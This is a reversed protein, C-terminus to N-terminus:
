ARVGGRRARRWAALRWLLGGAVFLFSVLAAAQWYWPSVFRVRIDSDFGAPLAIHIQGTDGGSVALAAGGEGTARYGPYYLLPVTVTGGAETRAHLTCTTGERSFDTVEADQATPTKPLESASRGALAAPLYETGAAAFDPISKGDGYASQNWVAANSICFGGEILSCVILAAAAAPRWQGQGRLLEVAACGPMVLLVAAIGLYRWSFQVQTLMHLVPVNVLFDWPTTWLCCVLAIGGAAAGACGAAWTRDKPKAGYLATWLLFLALAMLLALGVTQPAERGIGDRVSGGGEGASAAFLLLQGLLTGDAQLKGGPSFSIASVGRLMYDALPVLFWLSALAATGAAKCLALLRAPRLTRRLLCVCTGLTFLAFMETSLVHCQVVGAFGAALPVWCRRWGPADPALTFVDWLGAVILPAFALATYEGLACRYYVDFLRYISLTYLVSGVMGALDSRFIHGFAWAAAAATFLNVCVIYIQMATLLPFGIVRLLAPLYLFLDCYFVPIPSGQGGFWDSQLRVPWVGGRALEQALAEIRHLHFDFDDRGTMTTSFALSSAFVTVLLVLLVLAARRGTLGPIRRRFFLWFFDFLAFLFLQRLLVANNNVPIIDLGTVTIQGSAATVLISLDDVRQPLWFDIGAQTSDGTFPAERDAMALSGQVSLSGRADAAADYHVVARYMGARLTNWVTSAISGEGDAVIGDQETHSAGGPNLGSGPTFTLPTKGAQWAAAQLLLVALQCVVLLALVREQRLCAKLKAGLEKM